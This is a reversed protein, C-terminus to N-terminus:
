SASHSLTKKEGTVLSHVFSLIKAVLDSNPIHLSGISIEQPFGLKYLSSVAQIADKCKATKVM